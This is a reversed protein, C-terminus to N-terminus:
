HFKINRLQDFLENINQNNIINKVEQNNLITDINVKCIQKFNDRLFKIIFRYAQVLHDKTKAGTIIISGSEFVFVSIIDTGNYDYKINVCAHVSPEYTCNFKQTSLQNYLKNRDVEFGVYANSNIMRVTINKIKNIDLNEPKSAFTQCIIENKERNYIGKIKKLENCVIKIANLFQVLNKCGTIQFSGNKFIKVNVIKLMDISDVEMPSLDVITTVSNYFNKKKKVQKKITKKQIL